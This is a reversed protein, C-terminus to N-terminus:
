LYGVIQRLADEPGVPMLAKFPEGNVGNKM